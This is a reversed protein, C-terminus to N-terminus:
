KESILKKNNFKNLYMMKDATRIVDKIDSCGDILSYGISITLNINEICNKNWEVLKTQIRNVLTDSSIDCCSNISLIIFEDGGYRFVYDTSRCSEMFINSIETLIYDGYIHGYTDNISKFKDIDIIFLCQTAKYRKVRDMERPIIENFYNKNYLQTLPDRNAKKYLEENITAMNYVLTRIHESLEVVADKHTANIYVDCKPCDCKHKFGCLTNAILWCRTNHKSHAPCEKKNCNKIEWCTDIKNESLTPEWTKWSESDELLLNLFNRVDTTLTTLNM